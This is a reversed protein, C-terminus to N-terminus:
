SENTNNKNNADNEDDFSNKLSEALDNMGKKLNEKIDNKVQTTGKDKLMQPVDKFRWIVFLVVLIIILKKGWAHWWTRKIFIRNLAFPGDDDVDNGYSRVVTLKKKSYQLRMNVSFTTSYDGEDSNAYEHFSVEIYKEFKKGMEFKYSGCYEKGDVYLYVVHSDIVKSIDKTFKLKTGHDTKNMYTENLTMDEVHGKIISVPIAIIFSIILMISIIGTVTNVLPNNRSM